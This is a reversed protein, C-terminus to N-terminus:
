NAPQGKPDPGVAVTSVSEAADNVTIGNVRKSAEASDLGVHNVLWAYMVASFHTADGIPDLDGTRVGTRQKIIEADGLTLDDETFEVGLARNTFAYRTGVSGKVLAENIDMWLSVVEARDFLESRIGDKVTKIAATVRERRAQEAKSAKTTM